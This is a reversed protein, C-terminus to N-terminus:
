MSERLVQKCAAICSVGFCVALRSSARVHRSARRISIIWPRLDMMEMSLTLDCAM